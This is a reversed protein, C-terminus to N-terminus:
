CCLSVLYNLCPWVSKMRITEKVHTCDCSAWRTLCIGESYDMKWGCHDPEAFHVRAGSVPIQARRLHSHARSFLLCLQVDALGWHVTCSLLWSPIMDGEPKVLIKQLNVSFSFFVPLLSYSLMASLLFCLLRAQLCDCLVKAERLWCPSHSSLCHRVLPKLLSSRQGRLPGSWWSNFSQKDAAPGKLGGAFRQWALKGRLREPPIYLGASHIVWWTLLTNNWLPEPSTSMEACPLTSVFRSPNSIKVTGYRDVLFPPFSPNRKVIFLWFERGRTAVQALWM